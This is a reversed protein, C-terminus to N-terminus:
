LLDRAPKFKVTKRPPIDIIEGTRPNRGRRAKRQQVSFTGLGRVAVRGDKRLGERLVDLWASVVERVTKQSANTRVSVERIMEAMKMEDEELLPKPAKMGCPNEGQLDERSCSIAVWDLGTVAERIFLHLQRVSDLVREVAPSDDEERYVRVKFRPMM